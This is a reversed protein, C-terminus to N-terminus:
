DARQALCDAPVNAVIYNWARKAEDLTFIPGGSLYLYEPVLWWSLWTSQVPSYMIRDLGDVHCLGFYHGLEHIPVYKWAIDPLRDMFTVGSADQAGLDRIPCPASVLNSALGVLEKKYRFVGVAVPTCLDQQAGAADASKRRRGAVDALMRVQTAQSEDHRVFEPLKVEAEEKRWHLMLGLERGKEEAVTLKTDLTGESMCYIRFTKGSTGRSDIYEDLEDESLGDDAVVEPRFRRWFEEYDYGTLWKLNLRLDANEHWLILDPPQAPDSRFDSRVFTRVARAPLRWGFAGHDVSLADKITELQEGHYKEELLERVHNRLRAKNVEDRIFDITDGLYLIRFVTLAFELVGGVIRVFGDWVRPWDWTFIGVVIDFLGVVVAVIVDVVALVFTCITRVAWRLAKDVFWVIIPVLISVVWCFWKNCCACWWDCDREECRQEERKAWKEVPKWVEEEIWEGIENCVLPM